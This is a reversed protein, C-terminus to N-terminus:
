GGFTSFGVLMIKYVYDPSAKLYLGHKAMTAFVNVGNAEPIDLLIDPNLAMAKRKLRSIVGNQWHRRNRAQWESIEKGKERALRKRNEAFAKLDFEEIVAYWTYGLYENFDKRKEICKPFNPCGNKHNPPYPMTCWTGNRARPDYIVENLQIREQM